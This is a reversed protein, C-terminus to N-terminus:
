SIEKNSTQKNHEMIAPNIKNGQFGQTSHVSSEGNCNLTTSMLPFIGNFHRRPEDEKGIIYNDGIFMLLMTVIAIESLGGVGELFHECIHGM